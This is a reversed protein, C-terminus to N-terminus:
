TRRSILASFGDECGDTTASSSVMRRLVSFFIGPAASRLSGSPGGKLKFRTQACRM